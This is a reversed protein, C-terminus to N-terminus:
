QLLFRGDTGRIADFRILEAVDSILSKDAASLDGEYVAYKFLGPRRETDSFALYKAAISNPHDVVADMLAIARGHEILLDFTHIKGSRGPYPFELQTKPAWNAGDLIAKTRHILGVEKTQRVRGVSARAADAAANAVSAIASWLWEQSPVKARIQGDVFECGFADASAKASRTFTREDAGHLWAVREAGSGDHVIFGDGHGVIIISVQEFSPYLCHTLVQLGGDATRCHEYRGMASEVVACDLM